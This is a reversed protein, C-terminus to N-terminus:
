LLLHHLSSLFSYLFSRDNVTISYTINMDFDPYLTYNEDSSFFTDPGDVQKTVLTKTYAEIKVNDFYIQDDIHATGEARFRVTTDTGLYDSIDYELERYDADSEDIDIYSLQTWTSGDPSIDIYVRTDVNTDNNRRHRLTLRAGTYSSTDASRKISRTHGDTNTVKIAYGGKVPDEEVQIYGATSSDDDGNETWDTKWNVTGNNDDYVRSSSIEDYFSSTDFQDEQHYNRYLSSHFM